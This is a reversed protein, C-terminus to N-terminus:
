LPQCGSEDMQGGDVGLEVRGRDDFRDDVGPDSRQACCPLVMSVSAPRWKTAGQWDAMPSESAEPSSVALSV